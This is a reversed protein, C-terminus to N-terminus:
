LGCTDATAKSKTLEFTAVERSICVAIQVVSEGCMCRRDAIDREDKSIEPCPHCIAEGM